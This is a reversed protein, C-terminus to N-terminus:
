RGAPPPPSELIELAAPLFERDRGSVASATRPAPPPPTADAPPATRENM